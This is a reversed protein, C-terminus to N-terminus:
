YSRLLRSSFKRKRSVNWENPNENFSFSSIIANFSCNIELFSFLIVFWSSINSINRNIKKHKLISTFFYLSKSPERACLLTFFFRFFIGTTSFCCVTKSSVFEFDHATSTKMLVQEDDILKGIWNIMRNTWSTYNSISASVMHSSHFFFVFMELVNELETSMEIYRAYVAWRVTTDRM